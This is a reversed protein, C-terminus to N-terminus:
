HETQGDKDLLVIKRTVVNNIKVAEWASLYLTEGSNGWEADLVKDLESM